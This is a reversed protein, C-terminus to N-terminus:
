LTLEVFFTSGKGIGKSEGWIKGNHAEVIKRAVFLGLGTGETNVSSVFHVRSFKEFLRPIDKHPIGIGTDQIKLMVKKGQCSVSVAVGGSETYKLANDVLNMVVQRMKESDIKAFPLEPDRQMSLTLHKKEAVDHFEEVINQVLAGFDVKTMDYEMKKSEIRSVNLLDEVLKILRENSVYVKELADRETEEIEGFSGELLMSIYGKIITLPTRLQHSAISIFESKAKDLEQLQANAAALRRNFLRIQKNKDNLELNVRKLTETARKVEERLTVNFSRTEQYLLANEFSIAAQNAVIQLVQLDKQTFVDGSKKESFLLFGTLRENFYLPVCLAVDLQELMRLLQQDNRSLAMNEEQRKWEELVIPAHHLSLARIFTHRQHFTALVVGEPFGILSEAQFHRQKKELLFFALKKVKFTSVLSETFETILKSLNLLTSLFKTVSDLYTEVDYEDKFFIRDTARQLFRKLPEFGIALLISVILGTFFLARYPFFQQLYETVFSVLFVYVAALTLVLAVFVTSRKIVLKLDMLRYRFIAYGMILPYLFVTLNLAPYIDIHYHPLYATSGGAFGVLTAMFFYKIQLRKIGQAVRYGQFLKIHSYITLAFFLVTFAQFAPTAPYSYYFQGFVFRVSNIFIDTNLNAYSFIAGLAYLIFIFTRHSLSLFKYVFHTFLLPIWVVGIYAVRWWFIAMAPDDETAIMLVGFGWFMVSLCFIGWLYHLRQKAKLLVFVAMGFSTFGALIGSLAFINM